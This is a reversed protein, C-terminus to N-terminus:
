GDERKKAGLRLATGMLEVAAPCDRGVDEKFLVGAPQELRKCYPIDKEMCSWKSDVVAVSYFEDIISFLGWM